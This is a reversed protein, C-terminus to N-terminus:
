RAAVSRGAAAAGAIGGAARAPRHAGDRQGAGQLVHLVTRATANFPAPGPDPHARLTAAVCEQFEPRERAQLRNAAALYFAVDDDPLRASM